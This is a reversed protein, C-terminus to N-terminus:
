GQRKSPDSKLEDEVADIPFEPTTQLGVVTSLSRVRQGLSARLASLVASEQVEGSEEVWRLRHLAFLGILTAFFFFFDWHTFHLAEMALAHTESRWSLVLTLEWRTLLDATLGGIMAALAAATANVLASAALFTTANGKPALRMTLNGSALTIGASAIGTAIHILVLLPITGAHKEPMTTFTWAFISGVFLPGCVRMVSKNNFRDAITGWQTVMLYAAIQALTGLGIVSFLSLEMKRLMHVTFFPAALNIAFNWSALFVILRRYNQNFFPERLHTLWNATSASGAMPPEVIHKSAWVSYAGGFFALAYIFAFGWAKPLPIWSQWADVFGAAMLSFIIGIGIMSKQRNGFVRGMEKDPVLDRMWSSWACALFAGAVYRLFFAVGIVTLALEQQPLLAAVAIVLLMPRAVFGAILYVKRRQRVRDVTFLAPVQALQALHPIAALVGIMLNSAGLDIALATLFAGVALTEMIQIGVGNRVIWRESAALDQKEAETVEQTM